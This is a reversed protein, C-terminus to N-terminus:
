LNFEVFLEQYAEDVSERIVSIMDQATMGECRPPLESIFRQMRAKCKSGLIQFAEEVEPLSVLSGQLKEKKIREIEKQEEKIATEAILKKYRQLLFEENDVFPLDDDSDSDSDNLNEPPTDCFLAALDKM